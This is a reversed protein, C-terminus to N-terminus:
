VSCKSCQKSPMSQRHSRLSRANGGIELWIHQNIQGDTLGLMRLTIACGRRSSHSTEGQYLNVASLHKKLRDSMAPSTVPKDSISNASPNRVRFMYGQRLNIESKEAFTLYEQLHTIHCIDLDKSSLLVVNKPHHISAVKGAIHTILVGQTDNLNSFTTVLLSYGFRGRRDGSHCQMSFFARDRLLLFKTLPDKEISIKYSIHRCLKGLKDFLLPVAQKQAVDASTQELTVSKLHRKIQPAALPNGLCLVPNWDGSRGIDRFIARLKGILSDVSKAAMTKPCGCKHTSTKGRFACSPTHIQTRGNSEKFILFQRVHDPLANMITLSPGIATM